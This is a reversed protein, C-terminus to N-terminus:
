ENAWDNILWWNGQDHPMFKPHTITEFSPLYGLSGDGYSKIRLIVIEIHRQAVICREVDALSGGIRYNTAKAIKALNEFVQRCGMLATFSEGPLGLAYFKHSREAYRVFEIAMRVFESVGRYASDPAVSIAHELTKLARDGVAGCLEERHHMWFLFPNSYLLLRCKLSSRIGTFAFIGGAEQLEVGMLRAWEEHTEGAELYSRLFNPAERLKSYDSAESQTGAKWLNLRVTDGVPVSTAHVEFAEEGLRGRITGQRETRKKLPNMGALLCLRNITSEGQETPLFAERVSTAHSLCRIEFGAEAPAIEWRSRRSGVFQRILAECLGSSVTSNIPSPDPLQPNPEFVVAAGSPASPEIVEPSAETLMKGAGRIAPLLTEYNGFLGCEWTTVCVGYADDALAAAVHERVNEEAQPLHCWSANYTHITPSYVVEFGAERFIRSTEHPGKFYEWDFILTEKPILPLATPHDFFMDGWVAPRRGADAVRRAIVGFHEGYIQAKGDVGPTEEYAKVRASCTPCKGLQWTEDGGIHIIDSKFIALTDDVIRNALDFFEPKSPCAQMGRFRGEALGHGAETYLLGEFHGLLNIFPIIQIDSFEDQLVQVMEPTVCGRGHAWPTSPYAFRHEMYLGIANYGSDRTLQCFARLHDLTPSQERALDYTWM